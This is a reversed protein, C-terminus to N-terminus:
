WLEVVLRPVTDFHPDRTVVSLGHRHASAAIWLDNDPIPTSNLRLAQKLERYQRATEVDCAVVSSNAILDAIKSFQAGQRTAGFAGYFLEGLVTTSVVMQVAELRQVIVQDLRFAAVVVSTDVLVSRPSGAM